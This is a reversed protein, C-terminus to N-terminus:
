RSALVRSGTALDIAVLAGRREDVAYAVNTSGDYALQTARLLAPGTGATNSSIATRLGTGLDIAVLADHRLVLLRDRRPDVAAATPQGIPIAGAAPDLPSWAGDEPQIRVVATGTMGARFALVSGRTPDFAIPGLNDPPMPVTRTARGPLDVIHLTDATPGAM